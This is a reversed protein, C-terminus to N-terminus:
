VGRFDVVVEPREALGTFQDGPLFNGRMIGVEDAHTGGEHLVPRDEMSTGDRDM